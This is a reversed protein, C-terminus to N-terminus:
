CCREAGARAGERVTAIIEDVELYLASLQSPTKAFTCYHCVRQLATHRPYVGQPQLYAPAMIATEFVALVRWSSTTWRSWTVGMQLAVM